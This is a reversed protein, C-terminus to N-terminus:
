WSIQFKTAWFLGMVRHITYLTSTLKQKMQLIQSKQKSRCARAIHDKKKCFHCEVDQFECKTAKHKGGCRHCEVSSAKHSQAASQNPARKQSQRREQRVSHVLATNSEQLDKAEKEATEVITLAQDFTLDKEALL